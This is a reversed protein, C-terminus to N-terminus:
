HFWEKKSSVNLTRYMISFINDNDINGYSDNTEQTLRIEYQTGNKLTINIIQGLFPINSSTGIKMSTSSSSTNMDKKRFMISFINDYESSEQSINMDYLNGNKLTVKIIQGLFPLNHARGVQM